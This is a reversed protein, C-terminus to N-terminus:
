PHLPCPPPLVTNFQQSRDFEQSAQSTSHLTPIYPLNQAHEPQDVTSRRSAPALPQTPVSEQVAHPGTSSASRARKPEVSSGKLNLKGVDVGKRLSVIEERLASIELFSNHRGTEVAEKLSGVEASLAKVIDLLEAIMHVTGTDETVGPLRTGIGEARIADVLSDRPLSSWNKVGADRAVQLLKNYEVKAMDLYANATAMAM